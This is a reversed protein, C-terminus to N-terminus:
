RGGNAKAQSDNQGGSGGIATNGSQNASKTSSTNNGDKSVQVTTQPSVNVLQFSGANANGGNAGKSTAKATGGNGGNGGSTLAGLPSGLGTDHPGAAFAAGATAVALLIGASVGLARLGALRVDHKM